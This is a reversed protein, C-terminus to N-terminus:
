YAGRMTLVAPITQFLLQLDLWITWNRIYQMDLQVREAYALDSRGSVQWIGTIGPKVTLLNIGWQNYRPLEEPSIMRPGVLSMENRLVNVLQPLEDLSYKRLFHGIRSVRPDKRIKHNEALEAQLDSHAALIEDSNVRMTRFKFADFQRGNVGMVRRRYIIPGPSDLKIAIAILILLPSILILGPITLGYDLIFKLSMDIGTMRLKNVRILPVYALEEVTLGTTIIEFLGSSLRLNIDESVGYNKFIELMQHRSLASTALILEQVEYKKIIQDLDELTGLSVLGRVQSAGSEIVSNVFGLVQLGSTEWSPLQEAMSRAEENAGVILAPALFYGLGRLRYILRRLLFRGFASFVFASAWAILIWGRASIFVHELFGVVIVLLLGITTARFILAFEKTGGLLNSRSYLGVGGYVIVWIPLLVLILQVYYSVSSYAGEQFVPISLEFRVIYALGFALGIAFVDSGILALVFLRWQTRRSVSKATPFAREPEARELGVRASPVSSRM